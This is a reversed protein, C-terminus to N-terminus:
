RRDGVSVFFSARSTNKSANSAAAVSANLFPGRARGWMGGKWMNMIYSPFVLSKVQFHEFIGTYGLYLAFFAFFFFLKKIKIGDEVVNKSIFFISFPLGFANLYKAVTLGKEGSIFTGFIIMNSLCLFTFAIMAYEIGTLPLIRGRKNSILEYMMVGIMMLWLLRYPFIDPLMPIPIAGLKEFLILLFWVSLMTTLDYRLIFIVLMSGVAFIVYM